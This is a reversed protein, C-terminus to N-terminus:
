DMKQQKLLIGCVPYNTVLAYKAGAEPPQWLESCPVLTALVQSQAIAQAHSVGSLSGLRSADPVCDAIVWKRWYSYADCCSRVM